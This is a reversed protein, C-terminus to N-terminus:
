SSFRKELKFKLSTPLSVLENGIEHHQILLTNIIDLVIRTQGGPHVKGNVM